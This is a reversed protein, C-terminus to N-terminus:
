IELTVSLHAPENTPGQVLKVGDPGFALSDGQLVRGAWPGESVPGVSNAAVIALNNGSTREAYTHSIWDINTQENGPEIAWACPSLIVQAGMLYLSAVLHPTWSDACIDLALTRGEFEFVGLSDGRSYLDLGIELENIKRHRARIEGDRAIFVAANYCRSEDKEEFGVAIAIRHHRALRGLADTFRGPVREAKARTVTSLWGTLCCEPLVVIDCGDKGAVRVADFVSKLNTEKDGMVIPIQAIGIKLNKKRPTAATKAM